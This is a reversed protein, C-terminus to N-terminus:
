DDTNCEYVSVFKAIIALVPLMLTIPGLIMFFGTLIKGLYTVPMVDGYGTTTLTIMSWYFSDPISSFLSQTSAEEIFYVTCGGVMTFLFICMGLM